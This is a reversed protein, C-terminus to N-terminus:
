KVNWWSWLVKLANGWIFVLTMRGMMMNEVELLWVSNTNLLHGFRKITEFHCFFIHTTCYLSRLLKTLFGNGVAFGMEVRLTQVFVNKYRLILSLSSKPFLLYNHFFELPLDVSFYFLKRNGDLIAVTILM